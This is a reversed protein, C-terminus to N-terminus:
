MNSKHIARLRIACFISIILPLLFGYFKFNIYLLASVFSGIVFAWYIGFRTWTAFLERKHLEKRTTWLRVLGIGFDTTPGTLHSTRILAGSASTIVANQLGCTFALIFLLFYDRESSLAEGFEGLKGTVGLVFVLLINLVIISFILSYHPTKNNIRRREVHWASIIVGMLFSIPVMLMGFMNFFDWKAGAVGALTAFGTVHSVFRHVSLYGGTNLAGGQFALLFWIFMNRREYLSDQDKFMYLYQGDM